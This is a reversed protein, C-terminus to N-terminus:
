WPHARGQPFSLACTMATSRWTPSASSPTSTSQVDRPDRTTIESHFTEVIVLRDDHVSFCTMPFDPMRGALPVVGVTVNPLRSLSVLRDLQIAM